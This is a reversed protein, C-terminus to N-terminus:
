ALGNCGITCKNRLRLYLMVVTPECSLPSHESSDDFFVQRSLFSMNSKLYRCRVRSVDENTVSVNRATCHATLRDLKLNLDRPPVVVPSGATGSPFRVRSELKSLRSFWGPVSMQNWAPNVRKVVRFVIGIGMRAGMSPCPPDIM